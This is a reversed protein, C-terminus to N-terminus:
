LSTDYACFNAANRHRIDHYPRVGRFVLPSCSGRTPYVSFGLVLIPTMAPHLHTFGSQVDYSTSLNTATLLLSSGVYLQFRLLSFIQPQGLM